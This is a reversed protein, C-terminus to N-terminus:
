AYVGAPMADALCMRAADFSCVEIAFNAYDENEAERLAVEGACGVQM